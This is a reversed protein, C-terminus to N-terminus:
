DEWYIRNMSMTQKWEDPLLYHVRGLVFGAIKFMSEFIFDALEMYYKQNWLYAIIKKGLEFETRGLGGDRFLAPYESYFVGNDFCLRFLDMWNCKEKMKVKAESCYAISGGNRLLEAAFLLEENKIVRRFGGQEFYVDRRYMACANSCFYAKAGKQELTEKTTVYSKSRFKELYRYTELVNVNLEATQRAFAMGSGGELSWLLEEILKEDTPVANQRMFLLFPSTSALAGQHRTEGQNFEEPDIGIIEIELPLRKGFSKRKGFYRYIQESLAECSDEPEGSEVNLLYVKEPVVTQMALGALLKFFRKDPQCVPIIVDVKEKLRNM